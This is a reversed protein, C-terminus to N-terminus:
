PRKVKTKHKNQRTKRKIPSESWRRNITGYDVDVGAIAALLEMCRTAFTGRAPVKWPKPLRAKGQIAQLYVAHNQPNLLENELLIGKSCLLYEAWAAQEPRVYFGNIREAETGGSSYAYVRIGYSRLFKAALYGTMGNQQYFWFHHSAGSFLAILWNADFATLISM